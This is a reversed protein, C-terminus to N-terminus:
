IELSDSKSITVDTGNKVNNIHMTTAQLKATLMSLLAIDDQVNPDSILAMSQNIANVVNDKSELSTECNM